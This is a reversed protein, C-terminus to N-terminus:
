SDGRGPHYSTAHLLGQVGEQIRFGIPQAAARANKQSMTTEEGCFGCRASRCRNCKVSGRPSLQVAASILSNIARVWAKSYVQALASM